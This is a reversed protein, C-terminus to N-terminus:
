GFGKYKSQKKPNPFEKFESLYVCRRGELSEHSRDL